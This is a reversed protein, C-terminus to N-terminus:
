PKRLRYFKNSTGAIVTVSPDQGPQPPDFPVVAWNASPLTDASELQFDTASAPWSITIQNVSWSVTLQPGSSGINIGYKNALYSFVADRDTGSLALDYLIIEAIDGKMRTVSDARTGILLPTGADGPTATIEGNGNEQGNLYHRLTTGEMDFGVIVYEGAPLPNAADVSGIGGAGGRFVRPIGSTPLTYFDTPRPLNNETKAWVARFTAFDDFKVVFFTAIDGTIAVSASSAISLYDNNGDFRLAPKSNVAEAVWLPAAAEDPQQANNFNGSQDSWGIVAGTLNTTVGADARLWLKLRTLSPLPIPQTSSVTISVPASTSAGGLNDTAVATLVFDGAAALDITASFPANTDTAALGGGIYFDVRIVSGGTDTATATLTANTPAVFTAGNTPSSITVSPPSNTPVIIPVGYKAGLYIALAKLDGSNLAADYILLEALDGKMQTAFDDRTGIKLPTGADSPVADMSGSGFPAGNLHHTFATGAQNFGLVLYANTALRGAGDVSDNGTDSGRIARPIGSNPQIYYDTPRPQNLETKAWVARFTAFDEFKVVFFSAIDGTIGVSPTGPVELYDVGDFRLVPADNAANNVLIPTFAPDGQGANNGNGSQDAWATVEGNAGATVGADAKLWLQLRNSVTLSAPPASTVSLTVPASTATGDKNDTALATFAVTGATEITAALSFPIASATGIALGNALFDVKVISGDPDTATATLTIVQGANADPGPVSSSLTVTPPLNIINYKTQLYTSVATRDAESLAVDYILLEAIEGKMKTFLDHRSGIKLPNGGDMPTVTIEGTGTPQGNLYHTVTTGAMDFGVVLYTNARLRATGDVSAINAPTTGLGDGRYLRPIGTSPLAYYDTPAPLNGDPGATHGWVARYTAFDDFKVVFFSSIDGVVAVSPSDAVDLFDNDGDFRLAPKNNQADAVWLPAAADDTQTANNGNPSQDVWAIVGGSANTTVGADAQLWLQLGNTVTLIQAHSATAALISLFAASLRRSKTCNM